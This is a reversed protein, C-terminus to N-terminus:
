QALRKHASYPDITITSVINPISTIAVRTPAKVPM